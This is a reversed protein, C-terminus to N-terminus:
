NDINFTSTLETFIYGQRSFDRGLSFRSSLRILDNKEPSFILLKGGVRYNLNYNNLFTNTLSSIKSIENNRTKFSGASILNLQFINSLSYSYSSLLNGSSDYDFNFLNKGRNPLVPYDVTLGGFKLFKNENELPVLITDKLYPRYSAGFYYLAENASPITLIGTAPTAGYGNTIKGEFGIIPNREM